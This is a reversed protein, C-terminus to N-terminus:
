NDLGERSSRVGTFSKELKARMEDLRGIEVQATDADVAYNMLTELDVHQLTKEHTGELYLPPARGAQLAQVWRLACLCWRDGPRVGPFLYQSIPTSLDNGVERSFELFDETAEICVTHRGVDEVGTSCFGDRYFGTGIGSGRCDSCCCMLDGGLVNRPVSMGPGEAPAPQHSTDGEDVKSRAIVSSSSRQNWAPVPMASRAWIADQM